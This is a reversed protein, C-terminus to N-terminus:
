GPKLPYLNLILLHDKLAILAAAALLQSNVEHVRERVLANFEGFDPTGDRLVEGAGESFPACLSL